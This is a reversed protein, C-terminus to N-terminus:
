TTCVDDPFLRCTRLTSLVVDLICPVTSAQNLTGPLYLHHFTPVANAESRVSAIAAEYIQLNCEVTAQSGDSGCRAPNHSALVGVKTAPACRCVACACWLVLVLKVSM